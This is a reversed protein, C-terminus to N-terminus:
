DSSSLVDMCIKSSCSPEYVVCISEIQSLENNSLIGGNVVVLPNINLDEKTVKNESLNDPM